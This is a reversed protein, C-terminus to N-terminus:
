KGKRTDFSFRFTHGFLFLWNFVPWRQANCWWGPCYGSNCHHPFRHGCKVGPTVARGPGANLATWWRRLYGSGDGMRVILTRRKEFRDIFIKM